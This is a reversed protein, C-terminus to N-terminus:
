KHSRHGAKKMADDSHESSHKAGVREPLDKISKTKDAWEKAMNPHNAFLFRAQAKSKFPM